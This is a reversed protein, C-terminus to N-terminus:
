IILAQEKNTRKREKELRWCGGGELFVWFGTILREQERPRQANQLHKDLAGSSLESPYLYPTKVRNLMSPDLPYGERVGHGTDTDQSRRIMVPLSQTNKTTNPQWKRNVIVEALLFISLKLNKQHAKGQNAYMNTQCTSAQLHM